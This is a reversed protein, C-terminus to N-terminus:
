FPLLDEPSPLPAGDDFVQKMKEAAYSLAVQQAIEADMPKEKCNPYNSCSYFFTGKARNQKKVLQGGCKCPPLVLDGSSKPASNIQPRSPQRQPQRSEYNHIEDASAVSELVGIGMLALSRGVAVTELKEFSKEGDVLGASRGIFFREMNTVDPIAIAKVWVYGAKANAYDAETRISGNPFEENFFLVRDKVQVYDKGKLKITPLQKETM